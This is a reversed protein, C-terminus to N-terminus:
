YFKNKHFIIKINFFHFNKIIEFYSQGSERSPMRNVVINALSLNILILYQYLFFKYRYNIVSTINTANKKILANL